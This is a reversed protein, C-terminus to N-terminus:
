RAPRFGVDDRRKDPGASIWSTASVYGSSEWSGGRYVATPGVRRGGSGRRTGSGAEADRGLVWEWVNGLLDCVGQESNGRPM